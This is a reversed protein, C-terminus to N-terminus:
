SRGPFIKSQTAGGFLNLAPGDVGSVGALLTSEDAPVASIFAKGAIHEMHVQIFKVISGGPVQKDLVECLAAARITGERALSGLKLLIDASAQNPDQTEPKFISVGGDKGM